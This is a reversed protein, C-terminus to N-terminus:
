PAQAPQAASAAPPSVAARRRRLRRMCWLGLAAWPAADVALGIPLLHIDRWASEGVRRVANELVAGGIDVEAAMPFGDQQFVAVWARAALPMPWGFGIVGVRAGRPLGQMPPLLGLAWPAPPEGEPAAAASDPPHQPVEGLLPASSQSANVWWVGITRHRAVYWPISRECFWLDGGEFVHDVLSQLCGVAVLVAVLTGFVAAAAADLAWGLARRM